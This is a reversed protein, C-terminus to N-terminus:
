HENNLKDIENEQLGAVRALGIFVDKIDSKLLAVRKM